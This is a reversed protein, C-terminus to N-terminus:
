WNTNTFQSMATEIRKKSRRPRTETKHSLTKHVDRIMLMMMMLRPGMLRELRVSDQEIQSQRVRLIKILEQIYESQVLRRATDHVWERRTLNISCCHAQFNRVLQLFVCTIRILTCNMYVRM